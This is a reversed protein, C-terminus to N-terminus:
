KRERIHSKIISFNRETSLIHCEKLKWMRAGEGKFTRVDICDLIKGTQHSRLHLGASLFVPWSGAFDWLSSSFFAGCGRGIAPWCLDIAACSCMMMPCLRSDWEFRKLFADNGFFISQRTIQQDVSTIKFHREEETFANEVFYSEEGDSFFCEKFFPFYVVGLWPALNRLVGISIAFMPMRNSFSRTGDIPDVVWLYPYSELMSQDFYQSNVPDEEDILLHEKTALLDKLSNKVYFSVAMDAKTLVSHDPKLSPTSDLLLELAIKGGEKAMAFMRKLFENM